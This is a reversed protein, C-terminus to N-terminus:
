SSTPASAPPRPGPGPSARPGPSRRGVQDPLGAVGPDGRVEVEPLGLALDVSAPPRDRPEGPELRDVPVREVEHDAARDRGLEKGLTQAFDGLSPLERRPKGGLDKERRGSMRAASCWSLAAFALM